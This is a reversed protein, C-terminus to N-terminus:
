QRVIQASDYLKDLNSVVVTEGAAIGTVVRVLDGEEEGTQVIRLRANNGEIVYVSSSNTNEDKIVAARPVFVGPVGGQQVIRATAFMGSRLVNNPNTIEVEVNITRSTVDLAPNIATIRGEFERAPIASVTASVEMGTHVLAAETEPLQLNLKIPNTLLLTAVKSAPTVYEGAAIPRDSIYGSFPATVTTDGVAKRALATQARAAELQAQAVAIGQNNQRAINIAVEYNQRASAAQARASEAQTRAQDYVARSVDGTEVLNAYRAANTEALRAQSEASQYQQYAARVEPIANPDFRSGPSLGIKAEAQRVASQAQQEAALAQNLRLQADRPDLRAIVAGKKVFAGVDVPTAIVQGSTEPAVDSTEVAAFSGTAQIYAQVERSLSLATTVAVPGTEAPNTGSAASNTNETTKAKSRGCAAMLVLAVSLFVALHIRRDSFLRQM